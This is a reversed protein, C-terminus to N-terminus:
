LAFCPVTSATFSTEKSILRPSIKPIIPKEPAPLLVSMRKNFPNSDTVLPRIEILPFSM